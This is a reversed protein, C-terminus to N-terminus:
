QSEAQGALAADDGDGDGDVSWVFPRLSDGNEVIWRPAFHSHDIFIPLQSKEDIIRCRGDRCLAARLNVRHLGELGAVNQWLREFYSDPAPEPYTITDESTLGLFRLRMARRPVNFRLIPTDDVLLVTRGPALMAAIDRQVQELSERQLQQRPVSLCRDDDWRCFMPSKGDWGRWLSSIVVVRYRGSQAARFAAETYEDCHYGASRRNFGRVIPCGAAALFDVAVGPQKEFWSYLHQAHSDGIVLVRETGNSPGLSCTSLHEGTVRVNACRRPLLKTQSAEVYSQYFTRDGAVRFELGHTQIVTQAAVLCVAMAGLVAGWARRHIASKSAAICRREVWHYSLAGFVISLCVGFVTSGFLRIDFTKLVELVVVIPWHWLYISYSWRGIAAVGRRLQGVAQASSRGAGALIALQTALVPLMAWAGPWLSEISEVQARVLVVLLLVGALVLMSRAAAVSRRRAWPELFYALGGATMEWGRTALSFFAKGQDIRTLWVCIVLSALTLCLVVTILALRQRGPTSRGARSALHAAGMLLLPYLLYFQWEVSLSWTHLFWREEIRTQFYGQGRNFFDNSNFLLASRAQLALDQLDLPPLLWAGGILLVLVLVALAPWIRYARSLLFDLYSFSGTGLRGAVIGTMLYGSIVFFVDVGVFGGAFGDVGFHYLVVLSVALARLANIDERFTVPRILTPESAHEGCFRWHNVRLNNLRHCECQRVCSPDIIWQSM